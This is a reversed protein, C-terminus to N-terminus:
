LPLFGQLIKGLQRKCGACDEKRGRGEGLIREVRGADHRGPRALLDNGIRLLVRGVLDGEDVAIGPIVPARGRDLRGLRPRRTRLVLILEGFELDDRDAVVRGGLDGRDVVEDGGAVVADADYRHVWRGEVRYDLAGLARAGHEHGEVVHEVGVLDHLDVLILVLETGDLGLGDDVGDLLRLALDLALDELYAAQRAVRDVAVVMLAHAGDEVLIRAQADDLDDAVPVGARHLLHGGVGDGRLTREVADEHLFAGDARDVGHEIGAVRHDRDAAVGAITRAHQDGLM